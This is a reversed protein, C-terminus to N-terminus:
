TQAITDSALLRNLTKKLEETADSARAGHALLLRVISAHECMAAIQLPTLATFDSQANVDAGHYLLCSVAYYRGKACHAHLPTYGQKDRVETKAGERLLDCVLIEGQPSAAAWHLATKGTFDCVNVDAGMDLLHEFADRDGRVVTEMMPLDTISSMRLFRIQGSDSSIIDGKPCM